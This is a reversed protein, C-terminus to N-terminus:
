NGGVIAIDLKVALRPREIEIRADHEAHVVFCLDVEIELLVYVM